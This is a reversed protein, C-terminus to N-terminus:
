FDLRIGFQFLRPSGAAQPEGFREGDIYPDVGAFNVRNSVNYMEIFPHIRFRDIDIFKSIRINLYYADFGRRSNRQQDVYDGTLSDLNLDAQYVANWPYKSRYYFLGSLQFKFPLSFIGTAVLRHRADRDVPGWQREWNDPEYSNPYVNEQTNLHSYSRSLTYSVELAWGHSYRKNLTLYLGRFDTRGGDTTILVNGRTPDERVIGTGPIVPNFQELRMIRYGKAWVLDAGLSLDTLIERQVGITAQVSYPAIQNEISGYTDRPPSIDWDYGLFPNPVSPDPYGPYLMVRIDMPNMISTIQAANLIPNNSFTGIGGRIQTKGDGVPDWSFGFRPNFNRINTNNM